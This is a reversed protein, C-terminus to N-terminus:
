TREGTTARDQMGFEERWAADYAARNVHYARANRLSRNVAARHDASIHQFTLLEGLDADAFETVLPGLGASLFAGTLAEVGAFSLVAPVRARLLPRVQALLADGDAASVAFPGGAFDYVRLEVPTSM